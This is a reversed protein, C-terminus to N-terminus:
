RSSSAKPEADSREGEKNKLSNRGQAAPAEFLFGGVTAAAGAVVGAALLLPASRRKRAADGILQLTLRPINRLYRSEDSLGRSLGTSRVMWAKSRGESFCRALFYPWRTREKPVAHFVVARPSFLISKDPRKATIRLCLETEEAGALFNGRRGLSTSFLGIEEFAEKRFAANCGHLNRVKAQELPMGKYTCGIVWYFEDALWGPREALWRPAVSGGVAWVDSDRFGEVLEQLWADSAIADDDIFAVIDGVAHEVGTNRAGSLGSEYVSDIARAPFATIRGLVPEIRTRLDNNHDVVVIVEHPALTQRELSALTEILLSWRRLTNTSIIVSVPM